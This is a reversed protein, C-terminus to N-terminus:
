SLEGKCDQKSLERETSSYLQIEKIQLSATGSDVQDWSKMYVLFAANKVKLSEKLVM